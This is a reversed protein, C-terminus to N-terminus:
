GCKKSALVGDQVVLGPLREAAWTASNVGAAVGFRGREGPSVRLDAPGCVPPRSVLVLDLRAEHSATDPWALRCSHFIM